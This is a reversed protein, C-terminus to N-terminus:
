DYAEKGDIAFKFEKLNTGERKTDFYVSYTEDEVDFLPILEFSDKKSGLLNFSLNNKQSRVLMDGINENSLNDIYQSSGIQALVINNYTIASVHHCGQLPVLSLSVNIEIDIIDNDFFIRDIIIYGNERQFNIINSNVKVSKISREKLLLKFKTPNHTCITLKSSLSDPYNTVQTITLNQEDWSVKSSVFMNLLLSDKGKFWINKQIESMAEIGSATCCWFTDYPGSFKKIVNSGMPQHYQSLGTIKSASNLIANYKLTEIHDLYKIDGYWQFMKFAIKETNHACCSESEGGTLGDSLNEFAGWHESKESVGGKIYATAKSSNNGNVFTRGVLYNYFNVVANRYIEESTISYRHASSIIMPLHTNAHLNELVDKGLSLNNVFYERDFLQALKLIEIDKTIEYLSYLSDGIGGFENAPNVKTCRLIGDIKWYSLKQFRQNIYHALNNALTLAKNNDLYTYCDILGQLIKHLTYYPAWVNRNEEFELTDLKGEEFASLYGNPKACMELIDVIENAKSRLYTCKDSFAFRSCASLYHGVFHGRLGCDEAEWGGLPDAFSKINANIRFTHMLRNVDFDEIYKKVLKRRFAFRNDSLSVKDLSFNDFM